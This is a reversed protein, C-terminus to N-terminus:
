KSRLYKTLKKKLQNPLVEVLTGVGPRTAAQFVFIPFFASLSCLLLSQKQSSKALTRVNLRKIGFIPLKQYNKKTGIQKM